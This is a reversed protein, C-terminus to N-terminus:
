SSHLPCSSLSVVCPYNPIFPFYLNSRLEHIYTDIDQNSSQKCTHLDDLLNDLYDTPTVYALLEKSWDAFSMAQYTAKELHYWAVLAPERLGAQVKLMQKGVEVERAELWLEMLGVWQKVENPERSELLPVSKSGMESSSSSLTPSPPSIICNYNITTTNSHLLDLPDTSSDSTPSQAHPTSTALPTSTETFLSLLDLTTTINSVNTQLTTAM